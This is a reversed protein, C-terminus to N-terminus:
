GFIYPSEPDKQLEVADDLSWLKEGFLNDNVWRPENRRWDNFVTYKQWGSLLLYVEKEEDELM